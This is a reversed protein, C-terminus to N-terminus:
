LKLMEFRDSFTSCLSAENALQTSSSEYFFHILFCKAAIQEGADRRRQREKAHEILRFLADATVRASVEVGEDPSSSVRKGNHKGDPNVRIIYFDYLHGRLEMMCDFVHQDFRSNHDCKYSRDPAHANQDLEMVFGAHPLFLGYDIRRFKKEDGGVQSAICAADRAADGFVVEDYLRANPEKALVIKATAARWLNERKEKKPKEGLAATLHRPCMPHKDTFYSLSLDRQKETMRTNCPEGGNECPVCCTTKSVPRNAAISCKACENFQRTSGPCDCKGNKHPENKVGHKAEFCGACFFYTKGTGDVLENYMAAKTCRSKDELVGNCQNPICKEGGVVDSCKNCIMKKSGFLSSTANNPSDIINTMHICLFCSPNTTARRKKVGSSSSSASPEPDPITNKGCRNTPIKTACKSNGNKGVYHRYLRGHKRDKEIVYGPEDLPPFYAGPADEFEWLFKRFVRDCDRANRLWVKYKRKALPGNRNCNDDYSVIRSLTWLEPHLSPNDLISLLKTKNALEISDLLLSMPVHNPAIEFAIESITKEPKPLTLLLTGSNQPVEENGRFRKPPPEAADEEVTKTKMKKMMDKLNLQM